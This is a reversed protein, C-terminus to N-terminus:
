PQGSSGHHRRWIPRARPDHRLPEPSGAVELSPTKAGGQQAVRDDISGLDRRNGTGAREHDIGHVIRRRREVSPESEAGYAIRAAHSDPQLKCVPTAPPTNRTKRLAIMEVSCVVLLGEHFGQYVVAISMDRELVAGLRLQLRGSVGEDARTAQRVLRDVRAVHGGGSRHYGGHALKGVVTTGIARELRM